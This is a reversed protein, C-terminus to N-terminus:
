PEILLAHTWVCGPRSMEPATWTRMLVYRGISPAPIGTWYGESVGFMTNPALDSLETLLSLEGGLSLSSSLLKHGDDYGFLCQDIKM